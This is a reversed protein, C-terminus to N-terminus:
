EALMTDEKNISELVIFAMENYGTELAFLNLHKADGNSEPSTVM